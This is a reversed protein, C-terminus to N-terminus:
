LATANRRPGAAAVVLRPLHGWPESQTNSVLKSLLIADLKAKNSITLSNPIAGRHGSCDLLGTQTIFRHRKSPRRIHPECSKVIIADSAVSADAAFSAKPIQAQEMTLSTASQQNTQNGILCALIRRWERHTLTISLDLCCPEPKQEQLSGLRVM